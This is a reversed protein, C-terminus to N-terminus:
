EVQKMLGRWDRIAAEPWMWNKGLADPQFNLPDDAMVKQRLKIAKSLTNAQQPPPLTKAQQVMVLGLGAYATLVEEGTASLDAQPTGAAVPQPTTGSISESANLGALWVQYAQDLKGESYYAFGLANHYKLSNPRAKLALAWYRRADDVSYNKNGVQLFQWVLRGRLFNIEPDNSVTSPVLDLAAKAQQLAVRDLLEELADKATAIDGQTFHEMAIATVKATNTTELNVPQATPRTAQTIPSPVAPLLEGPKPGRNSTFWWSLGAVALVVPLVALIWVRKNQPKRAAVKPQAPRKGSPTAPEIQSLSLPLPSAAPHPVKASRTGYEEPGRTGSGAREEPLSNANALQRMLDAILAADEAKDAWQDEYERTESLDDPGESESNERRDFPEFTFASPLRPSETLTPIRSAIAKTQPEKATEAEGNGREWNGTSLATLCGDFEPHMYLIPLAWYLQHSGYASILGARARSLSLDVPYGQNLNRYFLRTLTLAVEDPIREAMALVAPIGRKILAEALNREGTEDGEHARDGYAGRCSNFVAMQIGNNALLGALDEGTLTETLGTRNSVLYLEGGRAGLNSHGAYHLVQYHGQELAQTLQERDPQELITLQIEPSHLKRDLVARSQLEQQLHTVERKLQLNDRDSPAAIAMLIKLPENPTLLRTQKHLSTGPRYRSFIVDTGTALPRDGAHLVEWPLRPLRRGKLGLRLQLVERRHHAIGQACTWSDRLNGQFLGNYLQQGLAVLNPAATRAVGPSLYSPIRTGGLAATGELLGLLPDNMLQGALTLWEEVPWHVQEEALPVGPAVKETRVLYEDDGIPTVSLLFEQTM